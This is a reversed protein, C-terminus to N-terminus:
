LDSTTRKVNEHEKKSTDNDREKCLPACMYSMYPNVLSSFKVITANKIYYYLHEGAVSDIYFSYDDDFAKKQFTEQAFQMILEPSSFVKNDIEHFSLIFECLKGEHYQTSFNTEINGKSTGYMYKYTDNYDLTIKGSDLLSQFHNNVEEQSMGFRFGMFIRDEYDQIKEAKHIASNLEDKEITSNNQKNLCSCCLFFPIIVAILKM